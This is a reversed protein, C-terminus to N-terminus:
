VGCGRSQWRAHEGRHHDAHATRSRRPSSRIGRAPVPASDTADPAAYRARLAQEAAYVPSAQPDREVRRAYRTLFLALAGYILLFILIRFWAGSFPPLGALKQAIRLIDMPGTLSSLVAGDLALLGVSFRREDRSM